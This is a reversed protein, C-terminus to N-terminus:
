AHTYKLIRKFGVLEHTLKSESVSFIGSENLNDIRVHGSSHIIRQDELIMGVHTIKDEGEGFFALDGPQTKSLSEVKKGQKYQQPSDRKLRYGAIKFMQQTFGSCDIGYPTKGGWLYPAMLYKKATDRLFSFDRKQNLSKANGNFALQEEMRFLENTSIPLISGILVHIYHGSFFINASLDTCIKYDSNNIQDFYESTIFHNQKADIWGEYQDFHVKIKFWKEDESRELIEYHDGFLLQSVMQSKDSPNERIAVVSLRCIGKETAEQM